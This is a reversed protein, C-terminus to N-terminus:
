GEVIEEWVDSGEVKIEFVGKVIRIETISRIVKKGLEWEDDLKDVLEDFNEDGRRAHQGPNRVVASATGTNKPLEDPWEVPVQETIPTPDAVIFSATGEFMAAYQDDTLGLKEALKLWDADTFEGLTGEEDLHQMFATTESMGGPNPLVHTSKFREFESILNM